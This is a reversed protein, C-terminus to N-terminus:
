WGKGDFSMKCPITGISDWLFVIDHPIDGNKQADLIETVYEFSQEIYDFGLKYLLFGDWYAEIEGTEEDAKKM